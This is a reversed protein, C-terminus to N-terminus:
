IDNKQSQLSQAFRVCHFKNRNSLHRWDEAFTICTQCLAFVIMLKKIRSHSSLPIPSIKHSHAQGTPCPYPSTMM